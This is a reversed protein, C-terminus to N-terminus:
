DYHYIMESYISYFFFVFFCSANMNQQHIPKNFLDNLARLPIVNIFVASGSNLTWQQEKQAVIINYYMMFEDEYEQYCRGNFLRSKPIYKRLPNEKLFDMYKQLRQLVAKNIQGIRQTEDLIETIAEIQRRKMDDLRTMDVVIPKVDIDLNLLLQEQQEKWAVLKSVYELFANSTMSHGPLLNQMQKPIVSIISPHFLTNEQLELASNTTCICLVSTLLSHSLDTTRLNVWKEVSIARKFKSIPVDLSLKFEKVLHPVVMAIKTRNVM